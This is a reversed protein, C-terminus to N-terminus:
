LRTRPRGDSQKSSDSGVREIGRGEVEWWGFTSNLSIVKVSSWVKWSELGEAAKGFYLWRM